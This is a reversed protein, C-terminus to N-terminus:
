NKEKTKPKTKNEAKITKEKTSKEKFRVKTVRLVIVRTCNPSQNSFRYEFGVELPKIKEVFKELFKEKVFTFFPPFLIQFKNQLM